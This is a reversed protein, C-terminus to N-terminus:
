DHQMAGNHLNRLGEGDCGQQGCDHQPQRDANPALRCAVVALMAGMTTVYLATLLARTM